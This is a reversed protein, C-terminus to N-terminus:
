KVKIETGEKTTINKTEESFRMNWNAILHMLHNSFHRLGEEDLILKKKKKLINIEEKSFIIECSSKELDHKFQM